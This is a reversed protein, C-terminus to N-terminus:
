EGEYECVTKPTEWLRVRALKGPLQGALRGWIVRAINEVTPNVGGAERFEECDMNLHKHDFVDIVRENVARQLAEISVVQGREDPKGAVTVELEYNHGHGNPNNCRGFVQRNEEASLAASHLRHAASFEFRLSVRVVGAEKADVAFGLYPSVWLELREVEHPLLGERVVGFIGEAVRAAGEGRELGERLREVGAGRLVRDVEKINVLMGTRGDVRGRVTARLLVFVGLGELGPNGAFGNGRVGEKGTEVGARLERTLRVVDQM